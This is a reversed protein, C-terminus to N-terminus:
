FRKMLTHFELCHSDDIVDIIIPPVNVNKKNKKKDLAKWRNRLANDTRNRFFYHAFQAWKNGYQSVLNILLEDENQTFPLYSVQPNLYNKYRERICKASKNLTKSIYDLKIGQQFSLIIFLDEDKTFRKRFLRKPSNSKQSLSISSQSSNLKTENFL